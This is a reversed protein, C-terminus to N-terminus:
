ANRSLNRKYFDRLQNKIMDCNHDSIGKATGFCSRLKSSDHTSSDPMLLKMNLEHYAFGLFVVNDATNVNDNIDIIDSSSPDTGETFTKIKCASNLLEWSEIEAGFAVSQDGQWPLNGIIGYPHYIEMENVLTGAEEAGLGYYNQISNYLFHEICRDYNFVIIAISKLRESLCKIKCNQTLLKMFNAYWTNELGNFNIRNYINSGDVYLLSDREADLISRVIALKGCLEIKKDDNHTDIYSDISIAQPMADRIRRAARMYQNFDKEKIEPQNVYALIASQICSDELLRRHGGTNLLNAIKQKLEYGTPLHAENSAGAGVIFLLKKNSM